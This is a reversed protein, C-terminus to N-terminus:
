HCSQLICVVHGLSGGDGFVCVTLLLFTIGRVIRHSIQIFCPPHLCLGCPTCIEWLISESLLLTYCAIALLFNGIVRFKKDSQVQNSVDRLADNRMKVVQWLQRTQELDGCANAPQANVLVSLAIEGSEESFITHNLQFLTIVPLQHRTWYNVLTLFYYM